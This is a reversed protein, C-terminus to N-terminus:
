CIKRERKVLKKSIKCSKNKKQIQREKIKVMKEM